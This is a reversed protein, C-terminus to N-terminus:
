ASRRRRGTIGLGLLGLGLLSLTAPEPVDVPVSLPAIGLTQVAPGEGGPEGNQGQGLGYGNGNGQTGVHHDEGTQGFANGHDPGSSFVHSGSPGDQHRDLGSLCIGGLAEFGPGRLGSKMRCTKAISGGVYASGFPGAPVVGDEISLGDLSRGFDLWLPVASAPSAVLVSAAAAIIWAIKLKM